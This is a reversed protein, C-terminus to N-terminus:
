SEYYNSIIREIKHDWTNNKAYKYANLGMERRLNGNEHLLAIASAIGQVTDDPEIAPVKIGANDPVVLKSGHINLTIVPLGYSLAELHQAPCSDRLSCFIFADAKMYKCKVERFPIAGEFKVQDKLGYESVLALMEDRFPGDGVIQLETDKKVDEDVKSLAELVLGLGKFSYLRGLWLLQFKGSQRTPFESPMFGEPLASDIVLEVHRAGNKKAYELTEENTVLVVEANRLTAKTLPNVFSIFDTAMSRFSEKRWEKYFYKRFAKPAKHGGGLPGFIFKTDKLRHLYSGIKISGWTVHHVVDFKEKKHLKKAYRYIKHQWSFYAIYMLVINLTYAKKWFRNHDIFHFHIGGADMKALESEINKKGRSTTLVHVECGAKMLGKSWNWGNANESGKGPDCAYASLLVKM